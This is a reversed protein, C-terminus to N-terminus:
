VSDRKKRWLQSLSSSKFYCTRASLFWSEASLFQSHCFSFLIIVHKLGKISEFDCCLLPVPTNRGRCVPLSSWQGNRQCTVTNPQTGLTYYRVCKYRLVIDTRDVLEGNSVLPPNGCAHVAFSFFSFSSCFMKTQQTTQCVCFIIKWCM